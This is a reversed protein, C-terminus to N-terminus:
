SHSVHKYEKLVYNLSSIFLLTMACLITLSPAPVAEMVSYLFDQWLAIVATGDTMILSLIQPLGTRNSASIFEAAETVIGSASILLLLACLVFLVRTRRIQKEHQIRSLVGRLLREPPEVIRIGTM